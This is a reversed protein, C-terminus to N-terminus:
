KPQYNGRVGSEGIPFLLSFVTGEGPKSKVKIKGRHREVISQVINLGLGTGKERPKTTFFPEFIRSLHEPSIGVGNDEVRIELMQGRVRAKIRIRGGNKEACAYSANTLLNILAQEIQDKVAILCPLDDPVLNEIEVGGRRLEYGSFSLVEDVLKKLDIEQPAETSPRAYNMLNKALRQIRESARIAIELRRAADKEGLEELRRKVMESSTIIAQLPNNLEHAVGAAMQGLGALRESQLLKAELERLPTLDQGITIIGQLNRSSDLIPDTSALAEVIEGKETRFKIRTNIVREGTLVRQFLLKFPYPKGDADEIGVLYKEVFEQMGMGLLKERNIGLRDAGARNLLIIKGQQDYMIIFVSANEILIEQLHSFLTADRIRLLNPIIIALYRSFLQLLFKEEELFPERHHSEVGMLGLLSKGVLIPVLLVSQSNQLFGISSVGPDFALPRASEILKEELGPKLEFRTNVLGPEMNSVGKILLDKGREEGRWALWLHARPFIEQFLSLFQSFIRSEDQKLDIKQSQEIIKELFLNRQLLAQRQKELKMYLRFHSLAIAIQDIIQAVPEIKEPKLYGFEHHALFLRGVPEEQFKLPISLFGKLGRKLLDQKLEKFDGPAEEGFDYKSFDDICIVEPINMWNLVTELKEYLKIEQIKRFRTGPEFTLFYLGRETPELPIIGALDFELLTRLQMLMFSLAEEWDTARILIETNNQIAQLFKNKEELAKELMHKESLDVLFSLFGIVEGSEDRMVRNFYYLLFAKGQKDRAWAKGELQGEKRLKRLLRLFYNLDFDELVDAPFKGKLEEARYGLMKEAERTLYTIKGDPDFLVIPVPLNQFLEERFASLVRLKSEMERRESVDAIKLILESDEGREIEVWVKKNNGNASHLILDGRAIGKNKADEILEMCNTYNVGEFYRSLSRGEPNEEFIERSRGFASLILLEQDLILVAEDIMDLAHLLNRERQGARELDLIKQKGAYEVTEFESLDGLKKISDAMRQAQDSIAKIANHCATMLNDPFNASEQIRSAFNKLIETYGMISTLPQNLEHAVAGALAMIAERRKSEFLREQAQRLRKEIEIRERLDQYLGVTALEKGGADYIIEATMNVPIEEGQKNLIVNHTTELRGVGGYFPSRLKKMIARAAGPAYLDVINKKGVVEEAKFGTLEEAARNFIIINGDMDAAIIAQMSSQIMNELFDKTRQLELSLKREETIDHVSILFEREKGPLPETHVTVYKRESKKTKLLFCTTGSHRKKKLWESMKEPRPIEFSFLSDLTKGILRSRNYGTLRLFNGNIGTIQGKDNALLLGDSAYEFLKELRHSTKTKGRQIIKKKQKKVM